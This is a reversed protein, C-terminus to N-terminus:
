NYIQQAKAEHYKLLEQINQKRRDEDKYMELHREKIRELLEEISAQKSYVGAVKSMVRIWDDTFSGDYFPLKIGTYIRDDVYSLYPLLKMNPKAENSMPIRPLIDKWKCDSTNIIVECLYKLSIPDHFVVENGIKNDFNKEYTKFKNLNWSFLSKSTIIGNHDIYNVHYNNQELLRRSFVLMVDGYYFPETDINHKTVLSMYVGPFQHNWAGHPKLEKSSEVKKWTYKDLCHVVYLFHPDIAMSFFPISVSQYIGVFNVDSIKPPTSNLRNPVIAM